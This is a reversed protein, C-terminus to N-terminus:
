FKGGVIGTGDVCRQWKSMQGNSREAHESIMLTTKM